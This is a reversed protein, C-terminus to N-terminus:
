ADAEYSLSIPLPITRAPVNWYEIRPLRPSEVVLAVSMVQEDVVIRLLREDPKLGLMAVLQSEELVIQARRPPRPWRDDMKGTTLVSSSWAACFQQVYQRVYPDVPAKDLGPAYVVGDVVALEVVLPEGDTGPVTMQTPFPNKAVLGGAEPGPEVVATEDHQPHAAM